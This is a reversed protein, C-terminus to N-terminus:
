FNKIENVIVEGETDTLYMRESLWDRYEKASREDDYFGCHHYEGDVISIVQYKTQAQEQKNRQDYVKDLLDNLGNLFMKTEKDNPQLKLVFTHNARMTELASVVQVLEKRNLNLTYNDLREM